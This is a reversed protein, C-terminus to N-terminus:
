TSRAGCGMGAIMVRLSIEEEEQEAIFEKVKELALPTLSVM